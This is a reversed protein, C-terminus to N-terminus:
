AAPPRIFLIQRRAVFNCTFTFGAAVCKAIIYHLGFYRVAVSMVGANVAIGFTGIAVFSAFETRRDILRREKFVFKVSLLYVLGAGGLFSATAAALYGWSFFHVLIWLIGMDVALACISVAGYGFAEVVFNKM